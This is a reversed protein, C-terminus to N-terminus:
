NKFHASLIQIFILVTYESDMGAIYLGFYFYQFYRLLTLTGATPGLISIVTFYLQGLYQTNHEM